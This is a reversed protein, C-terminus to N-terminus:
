NGILIGTHDVDMVHSSLHLEGEVGAWLLVLGGWAALLAVGRPALTVPWPVGDSSTVHVVM